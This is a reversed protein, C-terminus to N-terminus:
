LKELFANTVSIWEMFNGTCGSLAQMLKETSVVGAMDEEGKHQLHEKELVESIGEWILLSLARTFQQRLSINPESSDTPPRTDQFMKNGSQTYCLYLSASIQLKSRDRTM